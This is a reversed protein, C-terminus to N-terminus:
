GESLLSKGILNQVEDNVEEYAIGIGESRDDTVVLVHVVDSDGIEILGDHFGLLVLDLKRVAM